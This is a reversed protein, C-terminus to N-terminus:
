EKETKFVSFNSDNKIMLSKVIHIESERGNKTIEIYGAHKLDNIIKSFRTIEINMGKAINNCNKKLNKEELNQLEIWMLFNRLSLDNKAEELKVIRKSALIKELKEQKKQKKLIELKIKEERKKLREEKNLKKLNKQKEKLKERKKKNIITLNKKHCDRSCTNAAIYSRTFKFRKYRDYHEGCISCQDFKNIGKELRNKRRNGTPAGGKNKEEM